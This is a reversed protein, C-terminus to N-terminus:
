ENFSKQLEVERRKLINTQTRLKKLEKKVETLEKKLKQKRLYSSGYKKDVLSEVESRLLRIYPNGHMYNKRYQLKGADIAKIIEKGTLNFEKQASKNSLTGKKVTWKSEGFHM